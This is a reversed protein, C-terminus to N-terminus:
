GGVGGNSVCSLPQSSAEAETNALSQFGGGRFCGYCVRKLIYKMNDMITDPNPSQKYSSDGPLATPPHGESETGCMAERTAGTLIKNGKESSGYCM